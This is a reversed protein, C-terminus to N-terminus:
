SKRIKKLQSPQILCKLFRQGNSKFEVVALGGKKLIVPVHTDGTLIFSLFKSFQPEHGVLLVVEHKKIKSLAALLAEPSVEPRLADWESFKLASLETLQDRLVEATQQARLLPSAIILECKEFLSRMAKAVLKIDARGREDLPRLDDDLATEIAFQERDGAWGHRLLILTKM